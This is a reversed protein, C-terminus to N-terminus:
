LTSVPAMVRRLARVEERLERAAALVDPEGTEV